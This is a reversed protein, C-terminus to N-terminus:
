RSILRKRPRAAQAALAAAAPAAPRGEHGPRDQQALQDIAIHHHREDRKDMVAVVRWVAETDGRIHV